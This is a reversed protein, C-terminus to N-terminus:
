KADGTELGMSAEIMGAVKDGLDDEANEKPPTPTVTDAEDGRAAIDQRKLGAAMYKATLNATMETGDEVAKLAIDMAGSAEGMTLHASVRDREQTVGASMVQTYLAPHQAKLEELNMTVREGTGTRKTSTSTPAFSKDIISDIMGIEVAESALVTSGKGYNANVIDVGVGRGESISQVFLDHIGDLTKQIEKVGAKTNIDPAKKPAKSSTIDVRSEDKRLSVVVGVSGVRNSQNAVSITDAQAAVAYAASTALGNVAAHVPKTIGKLTSLLEFLGNVTGGPSNIDLEISEIKPDGEAQTVAAIIDSYLTNGAGFFYAWWDPVETLLGIVPVSATGGKRIFAETNESRRAEISDLFDKHESPTPNNALVMSRFIEFTGNEILWLM